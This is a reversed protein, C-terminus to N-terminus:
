PEMGKSDTIKMYLCDSFNKGDRYVMPAFTEKLGSAQAKRLNEFSGVNVTYKRTSPPRYPFADYGMARLDGVIELARTRPMQSIIRLTWFPVDTNQSTRMELPGARSTGGLTRTGFSTSGDAAESIVSSRGRRFAWIHSAIIVGLLVVAVIAVTERRLTLVILGARVVVPRQVPPEGESPREEPAERRSASAKAQVPSRRFVEFFQPGGSRKM